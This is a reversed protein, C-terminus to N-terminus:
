TFLCGIVRQFHEGEMEIRKALKSINNIGSSSLKSVQDLLELVKSYNEKALLYLAEEEEEASLLNEM